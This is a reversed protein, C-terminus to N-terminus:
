FLLIILMPSKKLELKFDNLKVSHTPLNRWSSNVAGTGGMTYSGGAISVIDQAFLTSVWLSILVCLSITRNKTNMMIRNKTQQM